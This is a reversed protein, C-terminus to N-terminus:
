NKNQKNGTNSIREHTRRHCVRCLAILNSFSLREGGLKIPIRHHVEQSPENCYECEPNRSLYAKSVRAWAADYGREKPSRDDIHSRPLKKRSAEHKVCYGYPVLTPCRPWM